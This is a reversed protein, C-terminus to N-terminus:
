FVRGRHLAVVGAALNFWDVREFGAQEMMTKLTPVDRNAVAKRLRGIFAEFDVDSVEEQPKEPTKKATKAPKKQEHFKRPAKCGALGVACALLLLAFIRMATVHKDHKPKPNLVSM